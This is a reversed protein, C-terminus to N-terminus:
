ALCKDVKLYFHLSDMLIKHQIDAGRHFYLSILDELVINWLLVLLSSHSVVSLFSHGCVKVLM